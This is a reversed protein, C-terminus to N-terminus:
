SCHLICSHTKGEMQMTSTVTVTRSVTAGCTNCLTEIDCLNIGNCIGTIVLMWPHEIGSSVGDILTEVMDITLMQIHVSIYYNCSLFLFQFSVTQVDVIVLDTEGLDVDKVCKISAAVVMSMECVAITQPSVDQRTKKAARAKECFAQSNSYLSSKQKKQACMPPPTNCSYSYVLFGGSTLPWGAYM